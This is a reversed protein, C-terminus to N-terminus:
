RFVGTKDMVKIVMGTMIAAIRRFGTSAAMMPPMKPRVLKMVATVPPLASVLERNWIM